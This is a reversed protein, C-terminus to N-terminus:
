DCEVVELAAAVDADPVGAVGLEAEIYLRGYGQAVRSRVLMEAYRTDSQWGRETLDGVTEGATAEDYGRAKLKRRLQLASHERRGLVRLASDRASSPQRPPKSKRM